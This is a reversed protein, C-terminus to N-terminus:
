KPAKQRVLDRLKVSLEDKPALEVAKNLEALANASYGLYAYQYGLLFRIAPDAPQKDRASELSRLQKTYDDGPGYLDTFNEVVVGWRDQPLLLMGQQTAGAAENHQGTAFLAQALLLILTGNEPDDVIAHRWARVAGAYDGSRFAEEGAAAFEEAADNAVTPPTESPPAAAQPADTTPPYTAVDADSGAYYSYSSVPAYTYYPWSAAAYRPWYYPWPNFGWWFPLGFAFFSNRSYPRWGYNWPHNWNGGRGWGGAGWATGRGVGTGGRALGPNVGPLPNNWSAGLFAREHARGPGNITGRAVNGGPTTVHRALFSRSGLNTGM